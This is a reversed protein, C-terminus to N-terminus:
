GSIPRSRTRRLRQAAALAIPYALPRVLERYVAFISYLTLAVWRPTSIEMLQAYRDYYKGFFYNTYFISWYIRKLRPSSQGGSRVMSPPLHISHCANTVLIRYGNVFLNMQYDTEERYGNGRAYYGDFPFRLLLGKRTIIIANTIPIEIDEEFIAGNVYECLIAHFPKSRRLGKGFRSLAQEITEGERLYVRRGSVVGAGSEILKRLCKEAYASELYEDDDCFLVYDNKAIRAGVNRAQSAGLRIPNSIFRTEVEPYRRALEQVLEGTADSGADNVFIIETVGAQRYYSEGVLRLTHARNRTPVVLSIM